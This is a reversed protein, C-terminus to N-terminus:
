GKNAISDKHESKIWEIAQDADMLTEIESLKSLKIKAIWGKGYPDSNMIGPDDELSKNIEIIEGSIPAIIEGSWKASEIQGCSKGLETDSGEEPLEIFAIDRAQKVAIDTIGFVAIEGDIKIWNNFKDYNLDKKLEYEGIKM